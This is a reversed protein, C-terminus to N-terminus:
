RGDEFSDESHYFLKIDEPNSKAKFVWASPGTALGIPHLIGPHPKVGTSALGEVAGVQKWLAFSVLPIMMFLMLIFTAKQLWASQASSCFWLLLRRRLSSVFSFCSGHAQPQM